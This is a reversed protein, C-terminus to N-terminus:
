LTLLLDIVTVAHSRVSTTSHDIPAGRTPRPCPYVVHLAELLSAAQSMVQTSVRVYRATTRISAHGLLVQIVRTDTGLDLLHTAFCHRLVYPTIRKTLKAQEGARHLAMRFAPARM